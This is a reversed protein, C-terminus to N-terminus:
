NLVTQAKYVSQIKNSTEILHAHTYDNFIGINLSAIINDYLEQLSARALAVADSHFYRAKNLLIISQVEVHAKQLARRFSNINQNQDLESNDLTDDQENDLITLTQAHM